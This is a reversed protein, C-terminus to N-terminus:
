DKAGCLLRVVYSNKLWLPAYLHSPARLLNM